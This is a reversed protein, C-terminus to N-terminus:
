KKGYTEEWQAKNYATYEENFNYKKDNTDMLDFLKKTGIYVKHWEPHNLYSADPQNEGINETLENFWKCFEYVLKAEEENYFLEGINEPNYEHLECDNYLNELVYFM